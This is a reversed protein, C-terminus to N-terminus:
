VEKLAELYKRLGCEGVVATCEGDKYKPCNEVSDGVVYTKTPVILNTRKSFEYYPSCEAKVVAM